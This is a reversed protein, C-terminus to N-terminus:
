RTGACVLSLDLRLEDKEVAVLASVQEISAASALWEGTTAAYSELTHGRLLNQEALLRGAEVIKEVCPYPRVRIYLNGEGPLHETPVAAVLEDAVTKSTSVLLGAACPVATPEISPGGAMPLHVRQTEEDYRAFSAWPVADDPAAPTAEVFRPIAEPDADFTGAIEPMPVMENLDVGCWSLRIGPGTSGLLGAFFHQPGIEGDEPPQEWTQWDESSIAEIGYGELGEALGTWVERVPKGFDASVTLMGDPPATLPRPEAEDLLGRWQDRFAERLRARCVVQAESPDIRVAFGVSSFAQGLPDDEALTVTGHVDERGVRGLTADLVEESVADEPALVLSRILAERSPSAMLVRGRVAYYIGQDPIRRLELGGAPDADVGPVLDHFRELLCGVRSMRSLVLVDGFTELDRGTLYLSGPVLNNFVWGFMGAPPAGASEPDLGLLVPVEGMLVSEPLASWVASQAIRTRTELLEVFEICYKQDAPIFRAIPHVDRTTWSAYGLLVFVTILGAHRPRFGKRRRRRAGAQTSYSRVTDSM